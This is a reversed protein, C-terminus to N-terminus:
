GTCLSPFPLTPAPLYFRTLSLSCYSFLPRIKTSNRHSKMVQSRFMHGQWINIDVFVVQYKPADTPPSVFLFMGGILGSVVGFLRRGKKTKGDIKLTAIGLAAFSILCFGNVAIAAVLIPDKFDSGVPQGDNGFFSSSSGNSQSSNNTAM